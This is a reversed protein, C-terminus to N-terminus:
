MNISTDYAHAVVDGRPAEVRVTLIATDKVFVVSSGRCGFNYLEKPPNVTKKACYVDLM